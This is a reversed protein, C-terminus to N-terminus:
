ETFQTAQKTFDLLPTPTVAGFKAADDPKTLLEKTGPPIGTVPLPDAGKMFLFWAYCTASNADPDWQGLTMALRESFVACLTLRNKAEFLPWYRAAGELFAIRCLLAVGRRAELLGRELFAGARNFPPNTVIWDVCPERPEADLFDCVRGYGFPHIDSAEVRGFYDKLGHAMHGQGCAPEWVSFAEPDLRRILKAGARAGWPPTPFYNLTRYLATEPDDEAQVIAARQQRVASSANPQRRSM